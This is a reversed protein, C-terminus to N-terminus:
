PHMRVNNLEAVNVTLEVNEEQTQNVNLMLM